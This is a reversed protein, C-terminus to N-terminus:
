SMMFFVDGRQEGYDSVRCPTQVWVAEDALLPRSSEDVGYYLFLLGITAAAGAVLGLRPREFAIALLGTGCLIFGLAANYQLPAVAQLLRLLGISETYSGVLVALGMAGSVAGAVLLVLNWWGVIRKTIVESSVEKGKCPGSEFGIDNLPRFATNKKM